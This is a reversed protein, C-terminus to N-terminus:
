GAFDVMAAAFATPQDLMVMHGAEAIDVFAINPTGAFQRRYFALTREKGFSTASWPTIVSVPMTLSALHPRMDTSMDEFLLQATVRPDAAAAWKATTARSEAKLSLGKVDAEIAAPDIPKGFRAAVSDRMMKAVM